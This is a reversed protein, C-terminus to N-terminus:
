RSSGREDARDERGLGPTREVDGPGVDVTPPPSGVPWTVTRTVDGSSPFPKAWGIETFRGNENDGAGSAIDKQDPNFNYYDEAHVTVKMTVQGNEVTVDASSWQQYGGITKQWNETQPYATAPHAGGTMSFHTNGNRVMEDVAAATRSVEGNVNRAISPDEKYGEEYDFRAPEGDNDWYHAYMATADDLDSKLARGAELKAMWEAKAVYDHWTADKSDYDFGEDWPIDPKKPEGFDYGDVPGGTGTTAPPPPTTPTPAPGPSPSPNPGFSLPVAAGLPSGGGGTGGTGASGASGGSGGSGPGSASRQRAANERLKAGLGHLARELADISPASSRWDGRFAEFDGGGWASGLSGFAHDVATRAARCEGACRDLQGASRELADPDAGKRYVVM